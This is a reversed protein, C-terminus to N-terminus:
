PHRNAVRNCMWTGVESSLWAVSKGGLSVSAPFDGRKISEYLSSRSLGVLSLVEPLRMFREAGQAQTLTSPMLHGANMPM